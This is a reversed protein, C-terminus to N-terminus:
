EPTSSEKLKGIFYILEAGYLLLRASFYLWLMLVIISTLSGYIANFRAMNGIYLLFLYKAIYLMFSVFAAAIFVATLPPPRYALVRYMISFVIFFSCLTVIDASAIDFFLNIRSGSIGFDFEGLLSLTPTILFPIFFLLTGFLTFAYSRIPSLFFAYNRKLDLANNIGRTLASFIRKASWLLILVSMAGAAGRVQLAADINDLVLEAGTPLAQNIIEQLYERVQEVDLFKGGVALLGVFLPFVSLFAFFAVSAAMDKSNDRGAKITAHILHGSIPKQKLWHYCGRVRVATKRIFM